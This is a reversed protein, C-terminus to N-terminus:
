ALHEDIERRVKHKEKKRDYKRDNDVVKTIPKIKWTRRVKISIKKQM